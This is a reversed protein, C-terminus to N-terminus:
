KTGINSIESSDAGFFLIENENRLIYLIVPDIIMNDYDYFWVLM